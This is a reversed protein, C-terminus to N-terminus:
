KKCDQCGTHNTHWDFVSGARHHAARGGSFLLFCVTGFVFENHYFYIYFSNIFIVHVNIDDRKELLHQAGTSQHPQCSPWYLCCGQRVCTWRRRGNTCVAFTGKWELGEEKSCRTTSMPWAPLKYGDSPLRWRRYSVLIHM